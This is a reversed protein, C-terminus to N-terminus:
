IPTPKHVSLHPQKFFPTVDQKFSRNQRTETSLVFPPPLM